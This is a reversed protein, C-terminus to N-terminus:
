ALLLFAAVIAVLVLLGTAIWLSRFAAVGAAILCGVVIILGLFTIVDESSVNDNVRALLLGWSSRSFM